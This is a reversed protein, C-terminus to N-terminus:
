TPCRVGVSLIRVAPIYGAGVADRDRKVEVRVRIGVGGPRWSPRCIPLEAGRAAGHDAARASLANALPSRKEASAPRLTRRHAACGRSARAGHVEPTNIGHQITNLDGVTFPCPMAQGKPARASACGENVVSVAAPSVASGGPHWRHHRRTRKQGARM